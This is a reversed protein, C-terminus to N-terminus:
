SQKKHAASCCAGGMQCAGGKCCDCCEGNMKCSGGDCCDKMSCCAAEQANNTPTPQANSQAAYVVGAIGLSLTLAIVKIRKM